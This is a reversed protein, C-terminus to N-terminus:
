QKRFVFGLDPSDELRIGRMGREVSLLWLGPIKKGTESNPNLADHDAYIAGELSLVGDHQRYSWKGEVAIAARGTFEVREAFTQDPRLSLFVRATPRSELYDGVVDSVPPAQCSAFVILSIIIVLTSTGQLKVQLVRVTVERDV